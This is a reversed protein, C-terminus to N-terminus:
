RQAVPICPTNETLLASCLRRADDEGAFGHARLRYFTRGGSEASQVVLAKDTLLDGFRLLLAAWASRAEDATDYAGLHVLRTGPTIAAPDIERTAPGASTSQVATVAGGFGAVPRARPLPSAALAGEPLPTIDTEALDPPLLGLAEALALEIADETTVPEAVVEPPPETVTPVMAAAAAEESLSPAIGPADEETLDVPRPALILRDAPAAAVGVAAIENVALGQHEAVEGGPLDPAVRMPDALARVVPVGSIDRTALQWGWVLFGAVLALSTAMAAM